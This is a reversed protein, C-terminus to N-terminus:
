SRYSIGTEELCDRRQYQNVEDIASTNVYVSEEQKSIIHHQDKFKREIRLMRKKTTQTIEMLKDYKEWLFSQAKEIEDLRNNLDRIETRLTTNAVEIEKRIELMLENEWLDRLSAMTLQLRTEPMEIVINESGGSKLLIPCSKVELVYFGAM